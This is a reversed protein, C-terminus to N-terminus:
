TSGLTGGNGAGVAAPLNVNYPFSTVGNRIGSNGTASTWATSSSDGAVEKGGSWAVSHGNIKTAYSAGWQIGLEKSFTSTAQVIRAEIQVQQPAVDQEKILKVINAVNEKTDKIIIANNWPVVTVDGNPGLLGKGPASPSSGNGTSQGQPAGAAPASGSDSGITSATNMVPMTATPAEGRVM